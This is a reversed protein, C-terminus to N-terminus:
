GKQFQFSNEALEKIKYIKELDSVLGGGPLEKKASFHFENTRTAKVVEAINNETIGGGAMITIRGEAKKVLQAILGSGELCSPQQGSTLIRDFGLSIIEEMATLPDKVEDFARHFTTSMPRALEM